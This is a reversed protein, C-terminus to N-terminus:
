WSYGKKKALEEAKKPNKGAEEYIQKIIEADEPDNINLPLSKREEARDLISKQEGWVSNFLADIKPKALEDVKKNFQLASVNPYKEEIEQAAEERILDIKSTNIRSKLIAKKQQDTLYLDALKNEYIEVEKVRTAGKFINKLDSFEDVLGGKYEVTEPSLLRKGLNYPLSEAFIAFTPDDINGSDILDILHNKNTISERALDAREIIGKKLPLTEQRLAAEKREISKKDERKERLGVDKAHSLARGVNPDVSTVMAIDADSMESPDFGLNQQDNGQIRDSFNEKNRTKGFVESLFDQKKNYLNEKGQTQLLQAALKSQAEPPLGSLDQGTLQKYVANAQQMKKQEAQHKFYEPIAQSAGEALGGAISQLFSPQKQRNSQLVQVM